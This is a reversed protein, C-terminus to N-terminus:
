MFAILKQMPSIWVEVVPGNGVNVSVIQLSELLLEFSPRRMVLSMRTTLSVEYCGLKDAITAAQETSDSRNKGAIDETRFGDGSSRSYESLL